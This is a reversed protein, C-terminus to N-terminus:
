RRIAAGYAPLGPSAPTERQDNLHSYARLSPAAPLDTLKILRRDRGGPAGVESIGFCGCVDGRVAPEPRGENSLPV